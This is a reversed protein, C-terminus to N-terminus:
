PTVGIGPCDGPFIRGQMIRPPAALNERFWDATALGHHNGPSFSEVAVTLQCLAHLGIASELTSTIIPEMGAAVSRRALELTKKLGGLAMPKLVLRRVPPQGFLKEPDLRHFSEDIALPIPTEEQLSALAELTPSKLPEEISEIPLAKAAALFRRATPPHWAGNADLRLRLNGPLQPMLSELCRLEEEWSGHGVKLKVVEFGERCAKLLDNECASGSLSNVRFSAAPADGLLRCLPIGQTRAELDLLASELACAVAPTRRTLADALAHLREPEDFGGEALSSLASKAAQTAETGAAPLPACEGFGHFGGHSVKMIWGRRWKLSTTSGPWTGRLPLEYPHFFLRIQTM